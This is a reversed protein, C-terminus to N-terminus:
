AGYLSKDGFTPWVSVVSGVDWATAADFLAAGLLKDNAANTLFYGYANEGTLAAGTWTVPNRMLIAQHDVVSELTWEALPVSIPAYGDGVTMEVFDGLVTSRTPEVMTKYLHVNIDDYGVIRKLLDILVSDPHVLQM